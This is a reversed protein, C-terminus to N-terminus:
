DLKILIVLCSAFAALAVRWWGRWSRAANNTRSRITAGRRCTRCAIRCTWCRRLAIWEGPRDRRRLRHQLATFLSYRWQSLSSRPRRRRWQDRDSTFSIPLTRKNRPSKKKPPAATSNFLLSLVLSWPRHHFLSSPFHNPLLFTLSNIAGAVAM